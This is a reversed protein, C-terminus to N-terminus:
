IAGCSFLKKQEVYMQAFHLRNIGINQNDKNEFALAYEIDYYEKAKKYNKLHFFSMGIIQCANIEAKKNQTNKAIELGKLGYDVAKDLRKQLLSSNALNTYLHALTQQAKKEDLFSIKSNIINVAQNFYYDASDKRDRKGNSIGMMQLAKAKGLYDKINESIQEAKKYYSFAKEINGQEECLIGKNNEIFILYKNEKGNNLKEARELLELKKTQESPQLKPFQEIIIKELVSNISDINNKQASFPNPFILLFISSFLFKKM